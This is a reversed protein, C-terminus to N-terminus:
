DIAQIETVANKGTFGTVNICDYSGIGEGKGNCVAEVAICWNGASPVTVGISKNHTLHFYNWPGTSSNSYYMWYYDANDSETAWRVDFGGNRGNYIDVYSVRCTEEPFCHNNYCDNYEDEGQGGCGLVLGICAPNPIACAAIAASCTIRNLWSMKDVICVLMCYLDLPGRSQIDNVSSIMSNNKFKRSVVVQDELSLFTEKASYTLGIDALENETMDDLNLDANTALTKYFDHDFEVKYTCFEFKNEDHNYLIYLDKATNAENIKVPIGFLSVKNNTIEDTFEKVLNINDLILTGNKNSNFNKV